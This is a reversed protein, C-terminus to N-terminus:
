INREYVECLHVLDDALETCFDAVRKEVITSDEVTRVEVAALRAELAAVDKAASMKVKV